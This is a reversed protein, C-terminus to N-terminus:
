KNKNNSYNIHVAEGTPKGGDAIADPKGKDKKVGKKTAKGEPGGCLTVADGELFASALGSTDLGGVNLDGDLNFAGGVGTLGAIEMGNLELAEGEIGAEVQLAKSMKFNEEALVWYKFHKENTPDLPDKSFLKKKKCQQIVLEVYDEDDHFHKMLGTKTLKQYISEAKNEQILRRKHILQVEQVDENGKFWDLFLGGRKTPDKFRAVLEPYLTTAKQATFRRRFRMYSNRHTTSNIGHAKICDILRFTFKWVFSAIMYLM